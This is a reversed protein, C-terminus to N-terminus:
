FNNARINVGARHREYNELFKAETTIAMVKVCSSQTPVSHPALGVSWFSFLVDRNSRRKLYNFQQGKIVFYSNLYFINQVLLDGGLNISKRHLPYKRSSNNTSVFHRKFFVSLSLLFHFDTKM